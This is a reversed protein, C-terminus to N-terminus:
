MNEIEILHNEFEKITLSLDYRCDTFTLHWYRDEEKLVINAYGQYDRVARILNTYTYISKNLRLENMTM